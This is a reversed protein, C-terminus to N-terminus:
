VGVAIIHVDNTIADLENSDHVTLRHRENSTFVSSHSRKALKEHHVISPSFSLGVVTFLTL